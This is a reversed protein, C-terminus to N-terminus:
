PTGSGMGRLPYPYRHMACCPPRHFRRDPERHEVEPPRPPPPPKLEHLAEQLLDVFRALQRQRAEIAGLKKQEAADRQGKATDMADDADSIEGDAQHELRQTDDINRVVDTIRRSLEDLPGYDQRPPLHEQGEPPPLHERGERPPLHEGPSQGQAVQAAQAAQADLAARAALAAQVALAAQLTAATEAAAQRTPAAEIPRATQLPPLMQAPRPPPVIPAGQKAPATQVTRATQLAPGTQVTRAAQATPAFPKSPATQPPPVTLAPRPVPASRAAQVIRAAQANPAVPVTRAAQAGHPPPGSCGPTGPTANGPCAAQAPGQNSTVLTSATLVAGFVMVSLTGRM